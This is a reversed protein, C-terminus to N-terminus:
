PSRLATVGAALSGLGSLVGLGAGLGVASALAKGRSTKFFPRPIHAATHGLLMRYCM